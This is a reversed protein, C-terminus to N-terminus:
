RVDERPVQEIPILILKKKRQLFIHDTPTPMSTPVSVPLRSLRPPCSSTSTPSWTCACLSSMSTPRRADWTMSVSRLTRSVVTSGPSPTPSYEGDTLVQRERYRRKLIIWGFYLSLWRPSKAKMTPYGLIQRGQPQARLGGM